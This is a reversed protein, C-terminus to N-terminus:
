DRLNNHSLILRTFHPWFPQVLYKIAEGGLYNYALDLKTLNPWNSQILYSM